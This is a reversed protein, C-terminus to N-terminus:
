GGGVPTPTDTDMRLALGRHPNGYSLGVSLLVPFSLPVSSGVHILCGITHSSKVVFASMTKRTFNHKDPRM